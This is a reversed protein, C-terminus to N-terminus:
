KIVMKNITTKQLSPNIQQPYIFLPVILFLTLLEM